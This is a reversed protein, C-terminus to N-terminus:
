SRLWCVFLTLQRPTLVDPVARAVPPQSKRTRTHAVYSRSWREEGIKLGGSPGSMPEEEKVGKKSELEAVCACIKSSARQGARDALGIWELGIWEQLRLGQRPDSNWAVPGLCAMNINFAAKEGNLSKKM